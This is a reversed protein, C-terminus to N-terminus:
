ISKHRARSSLSGDIADISIKREKECMKSKLEREREREGNERGNEREREREREMRGVM